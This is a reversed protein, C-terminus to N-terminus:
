RVIRFTIIDAFVGKKWILDFDWSCSIYKELVDNLRSCLYFLIFICNFFYNTKYNTFILFTEVFKHFSLQTAMVILLM